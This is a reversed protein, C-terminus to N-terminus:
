MARVTRKPQLPGHSGKRKGCLAGLIDHWTFGIRVNDTGKKAWKREVELM